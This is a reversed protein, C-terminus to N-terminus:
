RMLDCEGNVNIQGASHIISSFDMGRLSDIHDDHEYEYEDVVSETKKVHSVPFINNDNFDLWGEPDEGEQEPHSQQSGVESSSSTITSDTEDDSSEKTRQDSQSLAEEYKLRQMFFTIKANYLIGESYSFFRL